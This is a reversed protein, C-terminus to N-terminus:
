NIIALNYILSVLILSPILIALFLTLGNIFKNWLKENRFARYDFSQIEIDDIIQKKM